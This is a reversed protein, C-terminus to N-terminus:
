LTMNPGTRREMETCVASRTVNFNWAFLCCGRVLEGCETLGRGSRSGGGGALLGLM